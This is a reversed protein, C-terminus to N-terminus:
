SREQILSLIDLAEDELIHLHYVGKDFAFGWDLILQDAMGKDIIKSGLFTKDTYLSMALVAVSEHFTITVTIGHQKGDGARPIDM